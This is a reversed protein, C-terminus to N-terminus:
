WVNQMCKSWLTTGTEAFLQMAWRWRQAQSWVQKTTHIYLYTKKKQGGIVYIYIYVQKSSTSWDKDVKLNKNSQQDTQEVNKWHWFMKAKETAASAATYTIINMQWPMAVPAVSPSPFANICQQNFSLDCSTKRPMNMKSTFFSLVCVFYIEILIWCFINLSMETFTEFPSCGKFSMCWFFTVVNCGECRFAKNSSCTYHTHGGSAAALLVWHPALLWWM